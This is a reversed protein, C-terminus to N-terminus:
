LSINQDNSIQNGNYIDETLTPIMVDKYTMTYQNERVVSPCRLMFIIAVDDEDNYACRPYISYMINYPLEYAMDSGDKRQVVDRYYKGNHVIDFAQIKFSQTNDDNYYKPYQWKVNYLLSRFWYKSNPHNISNMMTQPAECEYAGDFIFQENYLRTDM